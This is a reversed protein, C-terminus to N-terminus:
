GIILMYGQFALAVVCSCVSLAIWVGPLNELTGRAKGDPFLKKGAPIVGVFIALLGAFLGVILLVVYVAYDTSTINKGFKLMSSAFCALGSFITGIVGVINITILKRKYGPANRYSLDVAGGSSMSSSMNVVQHAPDDNVQPRAAPQNNVQNDPFKFGCFPCFKSDDAVQKACQPCKM